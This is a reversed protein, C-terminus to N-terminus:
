VPENPSAAGKGLFKIRLKQKKIYKKLIGSINMKKQWFMNKEIKMEM